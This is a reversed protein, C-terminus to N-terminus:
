VREKARLVEFTSPRALAKPHPNPLNVLLEIVWVFKYLGFCLNTLGYNSGKQHM